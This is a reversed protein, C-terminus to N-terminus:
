NRHSRLGHAAEIPIGDRVLYARLPECALDFEDQLRELIERARARPMPAPSCYDIEFRGRPYARVVMVALGPNPQAPRLNTMDIIAVRM